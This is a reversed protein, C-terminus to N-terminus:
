SFIVLHKFPFSKQASKVFEYDQETSMSITGQQEVFPQHLVEGTVRAHCPGPSPSAAVLLNNILGAVIQRGSSNLYVLFSLMPKSHSRSDVFYQTEVLGLSHSRLSVESDYDILWTALINVRQKM